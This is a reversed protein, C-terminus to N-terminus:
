DDFSFMTIFHNIMSHCVQPVDERKLVIADLYMSISDSINYSFELFEANPIYYFDKRASAAKLRTWHVDLLDSDNYKYTYACRVFISEKENDPQEIFVKEFNFKMNMGFQFDSNNYFGNVFEGEIGTGIILEIEKGYLNKSIALFKKDFSVYPEKLLSNQKNKIVVMPM